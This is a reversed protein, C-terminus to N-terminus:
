DDLIDEISIGELQAAEVNARFRGKYKLYERKKEEMWTKTSQLNWKALPNLSFGPFSRHERLGVKTLLQHKKVTAMVKEVDKIDPKTSHASTCHPVGSQADFNEEIAALATVSRAARQLAGEKFNSGMNVIIHKLLKNMHENHLDCSINRGLGGRVNVFRNWVVQHALNPSLTKLQIQLRLAQLAYKTHGAAKFHPMLLKWVGSDREGDGEGWSDRYEMLLAGFHCLVCAYNYMGDGDDSVDSPNGSYAEEVLTCKEVVAQAINSIFALKESKGAQQLGPPIRLQSELGDVKLIDCAAQLLHGKMVTIILDVCANVDKKPDSTVATRRLLNRFFALTGHDGASKKYLAKWM